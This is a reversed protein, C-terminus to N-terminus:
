WSGGGGGGGGGGSSSGGGSSGGGSSDSVTNAMSTLSDSLSDLSNMDNDHYWAPHAVNALDYFSLWHKTMGFVMAYPLVRELFLPDEELYRKIEDSKVRKVFERYGAIQRYAEIGNPTFKGMYRRLIFIPFLALITFPFPYLLAQFNWPIMSLFFYFAFGIVSFVFLPIIISLLNIKKKKRAFLYQIQSFLIISFIGVFVSVALAAPIAQLTEYFGFGIMPLAVVLSLWTFINRMRKPNSKMYGKGLMSWTYLETNITDYAKRIRRARMDYSSGVVFRKSNKFLVDELLMKLEFPLGRSVKDTRELVTHKGELITSVLPVVKLKELFAKGLQFEKESLDAYDDISQMTKLDLADINQISLYGRQALEIIAAAFDKNDASQDILLGARLATMDKPLEYQPVIPGISDEKGYYWWLAVLILTFLIVSYYQWSSSPFMVFNTDVKPPPILLGKPYALEVTLGEYPKLQQISAEFTANDVRWINGATYTSGFSGSYTAPTITVEQLKQPISINVRVNKIPIQWQTGISNWRIADRGDEMGLIGQAVSYTIVYRHKGTVTANPNGIQLHVMSGSSQSSKKTIKLPVCDGDMSVTYDSLGIDWSGRPSTVIIPIDRYIGHRKLMGFDYDIQEQVRLSGNDAVSIDVQYSDISEAYISIFGLFLFLFFRM